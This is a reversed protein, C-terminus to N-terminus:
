RGGMLAQLFSRIAAADSNKPVRVLGTMAEVPIDGRVAVVGERAMRNVVKSFTPYEALFAGQVAPDRLDFVRAPDVRTLDVSAMVEGSSKGYNRIVIGPRDLANRTVGQFGAGGGQRVFSFLGSMVDTHSGEAGLADGIVARMEETGRIVRGPAISAADYQNARLSRVGSSLSGEPDPVNDFLGPEEPKPVGCGAGSAMGNPSWVASGGARGVVYSHHDEVEVNYLGIPRFRPTSVRVVPAVRGQKSKKGSGCPCPDSKGVRHGDM